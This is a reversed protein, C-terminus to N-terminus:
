DILLHPLCRKVVCVSEVIVRQSRQDFGVELYLLTGTYRQKKAKGPPTHQQVLHGPLDRRSNQIDQILRGTSERPQTVGYHNLAAGFRPSIHWLSEPMM